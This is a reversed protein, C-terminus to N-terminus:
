RESNGIEFVLEGISEGTPYMRGFRITWRGVQTLQFHAVGSRSTVQRDASGDPRIAVVDIGGQEENMYHFRVPLVAGVGLNTPSVLPEVDLPLGTEGMVDETSDGPARGSVNVIVKSCYTPGLVDVDGAPGQGTCVMFMAVGPKTFKFPIPRWPAKADVPVANQTGGPLRVVFRAVDVDASKQLNPLMLDLSVSQGTRARLSIAKNPSRVILFPERQKVLVAALRAAEEPTLVPRANDKDMQSASEPVQQAPHLDVGAQQTKCAAMSGVVLAAWFGPPRM